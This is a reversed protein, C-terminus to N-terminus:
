LYPCKFACTERGPQDSTEPKVYVVWYMKVKQSSLHNYESLISLPLFLWRAM